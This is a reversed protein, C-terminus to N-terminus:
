GIAEATRLRRALLLALLLVTASLGIAAATPSFDQQPRAAVLWEVLRKASSWPSAARLWTAGRYVRLLVQTGAWSGLVLGLWLIAAFTPTGALASLATAVFTLVVVLLLSGLLLMPVFALTTELLQWDPAMFVALLWVVLPGGVLLTGVLFVSGAWKAAFYGWPTIARTWLIELAGAAQDKAIARASVLTTLFLFSTYSQTVIPELHFALATPDWRDTALPGRPQQTVPLFQLVGYRAMLIVLSVIMPWCCILFGVVGWRTRFLGRFELVALALLRQVTPVPEHVLPRYGTGYVVM